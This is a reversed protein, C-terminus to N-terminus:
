QEFLGKRMICLTIDQTLSEHRRTLEALAHERFKPADTEPILLKITDRAYDALIGCFLHIFEHVVQEQKTTQEHFCPRFTLRAWRYEYYLSTTITAGESDPNTIWGIFVQECWAPILWECPLVYHKLEPLVTEPIEKDFIIKSM